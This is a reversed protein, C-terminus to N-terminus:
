TRCGAAHPPSTRAVRQHTELREEVALLQRHTPHRLQHIEGSERAAHMLQMPRRPKGAARPGALCAQLIEAGPSEQALPRAPAKVLHNEPPLWHSQGLARAHQELLALALGHVVLDMSLRHRALALDIPDAEEGARQRTPADLRALLVGNEGLGLAKLLEEDIGIGGIEGLVDPCTAEIRLGVHNRLHALHDRDLVVLELRRLVPREVVLGVLEQVEAGADDAVAAHELRFGPRDQRPKM